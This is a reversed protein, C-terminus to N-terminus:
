FANFIISHMLLLKFGTRTHQSCNGKYSGIRPGGRAEDNGGEGVRVESVWGLLVVSVPHCEM